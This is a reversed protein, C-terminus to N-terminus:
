HPAPIRSSPPRALYRHRPPSHRGARGTHAGLSQWTGLHTDGRTSFIQCTDYYYRNAAEGVGRVRRAAEGTDRVSAVEGDGAVGAVPEGAGGRQAAVVTCSSYLIYKVARWCVIIVNCTSPVRIHRQTNSHRTLQRFDFM